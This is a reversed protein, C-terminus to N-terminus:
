TLAVQFWQTPTTQQGVAGMGVSNRINYLQELDAEIVPIFNDHITM